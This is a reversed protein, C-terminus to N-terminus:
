SVLISRLGRMWFPQRKYLSARAPGLPSAQMMTKLGPGACDTVISREGSSPAVVACSPLPLPCKALTRPPSSPPSATAAGVTGNSINSGFFAVPGGCKRKAPMDQQVKQCALVSSGPSRWKRSESLSLIATIPYPESHTNRTHIIWHM